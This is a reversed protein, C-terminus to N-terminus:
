QRLVSLLLGVLEAQRHTGTKEFISSLQTRVTSLSVGLSRAAVDRGQGQLMAIALRTEADTLGFRERLLAKKRRQHLGTDTLIIIAHPLALGPGVGLSMVEDAFPAVDVRVSGAPDGPAPIMLRGGRLRATDAPGCGLVLDALRADLAANGLTLRGFAVSPYGPGRLVAEADPDTLVPRLYRDVAFVVETGGQETANGQRISVEARRLKLAIDTARVLHPVLAAFLRAGDTCIEDRKPGAQLVISAMGGASVPLNAALREAGLGSRRWYDQHFASGAFAARGTDALSTIRGVPAHMTAPVTPDEAWWVRQYAAVIEPDARPASVTALGLAPDIMTLACNEAMCLDAIRNLLGGPDHDCFPMGYIRDIVDLFADGPMM